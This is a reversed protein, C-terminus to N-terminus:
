AGVGPFTGEGISVQFVLSNKPNEKSFRSIEQIAEKQLTLYLYTADVGVFLYVPACVCM